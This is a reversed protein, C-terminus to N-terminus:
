PSAKATDGPGADAGLGEAPKQALDVCAAESQLGSFPHHRMEAYHERLAPLRGRYVQIEAGSQRLKARDTESTASAKEKAISSRLQDIRTVAECLPLVVSDRAVEEAAVLKDEAQAWRAARGELTRAQVLEDASLAPEDYNISAVGQRITALVRKFNALDREAEVPGSLANMAQEVGSEIKLARDHNPPKGAPEDGARAPRLGSLLVLPLALLVSSSFYTM